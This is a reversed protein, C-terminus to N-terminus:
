GAEAIEAETTYVLSVRDGLDFRGPDLDLGESDIVFMTGPPLDDESFRALIDEGELVKIGGRVVAGDTGQVEATWYAFRSNYLFRLVYFRGDLRNRFRFAPGTVRELASIREPM